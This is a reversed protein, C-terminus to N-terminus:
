ATLTSANAAVLLFPRTVPRLHVKSLQSPDPEFDFIVITEVAQFRLPEPLRPFLRVRVQENGVARNAHRPLRVWRVTIPFEIHIENGGTPEGSASRNLLRMDKLLLASM